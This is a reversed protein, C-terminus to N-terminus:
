EKDPCGLLTSRSEPRRPCPQPVQCSTPGWQGCERQNWIIENRWVHHAWPKFPHSCFSGHRDLGLSQFMCLTVKPLNQTNLFTILSTFNSHTSFWDQGISLLLSSLARAHCIHKRKIIQGLHYIKTCIFAGDSRYILALKQSMCNM